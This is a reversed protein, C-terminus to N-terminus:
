IEKKVLIYLCTIIGGCTLAIDAVNFIPFNIFEFKFMDVVFGNLARDILNGVAGAIILSLGALLVPKQIREKLVLWIIASVALVGLVVFAWRMGQLIGFAAGQNEAYAFSVIGPIFERGSTGKLNEVSWLKIWQDFAVVIGIGFLGIIYKKQRKM